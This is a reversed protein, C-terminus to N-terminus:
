AKKHRSWGLGALGITFLALTAPAPVKYEWRGVTSNQALNIYTFDGCAFPGTFECLTHGGWDGDDLFGGLTTIIGRALSQGNGLIPGRFELNVEWETPLGDGDTSFIFDSATVTLEDLTNVGNSFSFSLPTVREDVLNPGLRGPLSLWGTVNDSTTFPDPPSVGFLQIDTFNNGVYDLM